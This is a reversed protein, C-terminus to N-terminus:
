TEPTGNHPEPAPVSSGNDQAHHIDLLKSRALSAEDHLYLVERASQDFDGDEFADWARRCAREVADLHGRAAKVVDTETDKSLEYNRLAIERAEALQADTVQM